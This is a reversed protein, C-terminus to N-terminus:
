ELVLAVIPAPVAWTPHDLDVISKTALIGANYKNEITKAASRWGSDVWKAELAVTERTGASSPVPVPALDVEGLSATRPYGVTDGAVWRGEHLSDIAHALSVGLAAETMTTM